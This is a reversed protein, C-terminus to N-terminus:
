QILGKDCVGPLVGNSTLMGVSRRGGFIQRRPKEKEGTGKKRRKASKWILGLLNAPPEGAPERGRPLAWAFSSKLSFHRQM